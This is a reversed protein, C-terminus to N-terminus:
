AHPHCLHAVDRKPNHRTSYVDAQLGADIKLILVIGGVWKQPADFLARAYVRQDSFLGAFTLIPEINAKLTSALRHKKVDLGACM